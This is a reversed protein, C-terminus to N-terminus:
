RGFIRDKMRSLTSTLGRWLCTSIYALTFILVIDFFIGLGNLAMVNEVISDCAAVAYIGCWSYFQTKLSRDRMGSPIESHLKM